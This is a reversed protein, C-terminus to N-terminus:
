CPKLFKQAGLFFLSFYLLFIYILLLLYTAVKSLEVCCSSFHKRLEKNKNGRKKTKKNKTKNVLSFGRKGWENRRKPMCKRLFFEFSFAIKLLLVFVQQNAALSAPFFRVLQHQFILLYAQCSQCNESAALRELTAVRAVRAGRSLGCFGRFKEQQWLFNCMCPAFGRGSKVRQRRGFWFRALHALSKCEFFRLLSASSLASPFIFFSFFFLFVSFRPSFQFLVGLIKRKRQQSKPWLRSYNKVLKGGSRIVKDVSPFIWNWKGVHLRHRPRTTPRDTAAGHPRPM